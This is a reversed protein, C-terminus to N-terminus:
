LRLHIGATLRRGTEVDNLLQEPFRGHTRYRANNLNQGDLYISTHLTLDYSARVDVQTVADTYTPEFGFASNNVEQGMSTLAENQHNVAVRFQLGQKDYFGIVNWSNTLGTVVFQSSATDYRNYKKDSNVFTANAQFGFGSDGFMQQLSMEVGGVRYSEGNVQTLINFQAPQNTIPDIVNNISGRIYRPVVVNSINKLFFDIALYSDKGYYWELGADRNYSLYPLLRSNGGSANLAGVRENQGVYTEPSMSSLPPRTLTRSVDLRVQFKDAINVNLDVNPLLYNYRNDQSIPMPSTYSVLYLTHDAPQVSLATPVQQNLARSTVKTEENRIGANVSLQATGYSKKWLGNLFFSQTGEDISQRPSVIQVTSYPAQSVSGMSSNNSIFSVLDSLEESNTAYQAGYDVKLVSRKWTGRLRLETVTNKNLPSISPSTLTRIGFKSTSNSYDASYSQHDTADWTINLGTDNNEMTNRNDYNVAVPSNPSSPPGPQYLVSDPYDFSIVTGNNNRVINTLNSGDFWLSYGSVHQSVTNKSYDDNVTFLIDGAPRWQLALRAATHKVDNHEEYTNHDQMYWSPTTDYFGICSAPVTAYQSCNFQTGTWGEINSRIGKSRSQSYSVDALVGFTNDAYTDTFLFAANPTIKSEGSAVTGSVYAHLPYRFITSDFPLRNIINVTAGIAGGPLTADSTKLVQVSNISATSVSSFDFARTGTASALQRGDSLTTNFAPGFGRVTISTADGTSTFGTSSERNVTVGPLRAMAVALNSDQFTGVDEASIVDVLSAADRKEKQSNQLSPRISRPAYLESDDIDDYSNNSTQAAAVVIRPILIAGLALTATGALCATHVCHRLTMDKREM